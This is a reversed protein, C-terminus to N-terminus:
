LSLGKDLLSKLNSLSTDLETLAKKLEVERGEGFKILPIKYVKSIKELIDLSPISRGLEYSCITKGSKGIKRGFSEQSLNLKLRLSKLEVVINPKLTM